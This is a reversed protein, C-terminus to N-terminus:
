NCESEAVISIEARNIREITASDLDMSVEYSPTRNALIQVDNAPSNSKFNVYYWRHSLWRHCMKTVTNGDFDKLSILVTPDRLRRMERFQQEITPDEFYSYVNSTFGPMVIEVEYTGICNVRFSWRGCKSRQNISQISEALSNIYDRNWGITYDIHLRGTRQATYSAWTRNVKIDFSRQPFDALVASLVRDGALREDTLTNVRSSLRDGDVQADATSNGLLRNAISSRAVWVRMHLIVQGNANTQQVVTYQDVFGSSYTIIDDRTLRGTRVETESLLLSGVAHEVALRFGEQRAQDFTAGRSEVQIHYLEKRDKILWQGISLAVSLPGPLVAKVAEQAQTTVLLGACIIGAVVKRM